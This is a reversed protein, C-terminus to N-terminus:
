SLELIIKKGGKTTWKKVKGKGVVKVSYGMNELLALADMGIMGKLNPVKKTEKALNNEYSKYSKDLANDEQDVGKIEDVLPSNAYIKHAITKFVPGSVDAGYYGKDKDPEHIVVICSYKPKDAPFYGAFSSIYQLKESDKYAYDKQCTGTKGAMSFERSYLGHGTGHKKEVVNKMLQKVRDVTEQSCISPNIVEKGFTKVAKDWSRIEKILRPKLMEGNNAIANYFTLTQLPTIDL